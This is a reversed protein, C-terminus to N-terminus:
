NLTLAGYENITIVQSESQDTITITNNGSSFSNVAGDGVDFVVQNSPLTTTLSCPSVSVTYNGSSGSSYTSGAFLVYDSPDIYIGQPQQSGTGGADGTMALLQQSKLNALLSNTISTLSSNTVAQGLNITSLAFLVGIIMIVVLLEIITFGSQQKASNLRERLM